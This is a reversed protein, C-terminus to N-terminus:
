SQLGATGFIRTEQALPIDAGSACVVYKLFCQGWLGDNVGPIFFTICLGKIFVLL